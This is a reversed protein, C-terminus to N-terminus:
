GLCAVDKLFSIKEIIVRPAVFDEEGERNLSLLKRNKLLRLAFLCTKRWDAASQHYNATLAVTFYITTLSFLLEKRGNLTQFTCM